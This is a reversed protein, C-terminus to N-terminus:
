VTSTPPELGEDGMSCGILQESSGESISNEPPKENQHNDGSAQQNASISGGTSGCVARQFSDSTPMAYHKMAIAQSNGLWDCVDAAPFEALLETQRSARMNHYLKPWQEIGARRLLKLFPTRVNQATSNWRTIVPANFSCEIGPLALDYLGQLYPRLEPFIPCFRLGGDEHHETKTARITLRNEMLNVDQWTLAVVESPCRLGGFRSLAIMARLQPCRAHDLAAFITEQPVFHQRKANGHVAAPLGLFPNESILKQKVARNFFQRAIGTRRRVTNDAINNRDKDRRNSETALWVRWMEADGATISDLRRDAGFYDILARVSKQYTAITPAKVDKRSAVYNELFPKLTVPGRDDITLEVLELKVLKSRLEPNENSIKGLWGATQIDLACGSAKAALLHEVHRKVTEAQRRSFGGLWLSRKRKSLDYFQIRCGNRNQDKSVSAM